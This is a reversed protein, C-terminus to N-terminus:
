VDLKREVEPLDRELRELDSVTGTSGFELLQSYLENKFALQSKESGIRRDHNRVERNIIRKLLAKEILSPSKVMDIASKPTMKKNIYCKIVQYIIQVILWITMPDFTKVDIDKNNKVKNSVQTALKVFYNDSSNIWNTILLKRVIPSNESKITKIHIPPVFFYAITAAALEKFMEWYTKKPPNVDSM